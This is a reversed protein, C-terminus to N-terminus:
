TASSRRGCAARRAAASRSWGRAAGAGRELLELIQRVGFAIGEYVARLPPRAGHRLTLGAIVGRAQPDFIPTREGAFYPLMLLGDAGAPSTAAAEAVLEDVPRGGALERM